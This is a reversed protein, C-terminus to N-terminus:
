TWGYGKGPGDNYRMNDPVSHWSLCALIILYKIYFSTQIIPISMVSLDHNDVKQSELKPFYFSNKQFVNNIRPEWFIVCHASSMAQILEIEASDSKFFLYFMVDKDLDSSIRLGINSLRFNIFFSIVLNHSYYKVFM